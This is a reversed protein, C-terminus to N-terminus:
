KFIKLYKQKEIQAIKNENELDKKQFNQLEILGNRNNSEFSEKLRLLQNYDVQLQQNGSELNSIIMEM